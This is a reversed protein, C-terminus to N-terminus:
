LYFLKWLKLWKYYPPHLVLIYPCNWHKLRKKLIKLLNEIKEKLLNRDKIILILNFIGDEIFAFM